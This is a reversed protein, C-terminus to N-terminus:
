SAPSQTKLDIYYNAQEILNCIEDADLRFILRDLDRVLDCIERVARPIPKRAEEAFHASKAAEQRQADREAAGRRARAQELAMRRVKTLRVVRRKRSDTYVRVTNVVPENGFTPHHFVNDTSM